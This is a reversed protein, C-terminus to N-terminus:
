RFPQELIHGIEDLGLMAFAVGATTIMNPVISIGATGLAIPLLFIYFVLLRTVHATYLPPICSGKVRECRGYMRNLEWINKELSLHAALPLQPGMYAIIQRIRQLSAVARKRQSLVYERDPSMPLMSHIIDSDHSGERLRCKLLWGFISLHRAIIDLLILHTFLHINISYTYQLFHTYRKKGALLGLQPNHPYMYTALSQATDRSMSIVRGWAKRGESLRGLGQNSRLTLLAAVFTSVLSLSTLSVQINQTVPHKHAVLQGVVFTWALTVSLAPAIRKLLRSQFMYVVERLYRWRSMQRQWDEDKWIHTM